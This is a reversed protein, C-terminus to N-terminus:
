VKDYFLLSDDTLVTHYVKLYKFVSIIETEGEM